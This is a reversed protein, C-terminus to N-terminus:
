PKFNQLQLRFNLVSGSFRGNQNRYKNTRGLGEKCNGLYRILYACMYNRRYLELNARWQNGLRHAPITWYTCRSAVPQFTPSDFGNGSPDQPGGLRRYSLYRAEKWPAFRCPRPTSWGGWRVGLNIFSYLLVEVVGIPNLPIQHGKGEDKCLKGM